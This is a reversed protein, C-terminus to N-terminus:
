ACPVIPINGLKFTLRFFLDSVLVHLSTCHHVCCPHVCCHLVCFHHVCCPHVCCPARLLPARLLPARLLPARLLPARLLTPTFRHPEYPLLICTCFMCLIFAHTHTLSLSFYYLPFHLPSGAIRLQTNLKHLRCFPFFGGFLPPPNSCGPLSLTTALRARYTPNKIIFLWESYPDAGLTVEGGTFILCLIRWSM